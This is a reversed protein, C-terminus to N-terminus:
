EARSPRLRDTVLRIAAGLEPARLAALVGTYVAAVVLGIVVTALLGGMRSATPWGGAFGGLLWLLGLGVALGVAGAAAFRLLSPGVGGGALSGIRRRLLV